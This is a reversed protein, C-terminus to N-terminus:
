RSRSTRPRCSDATGSTCIATLWFAKRTRGFFLSRWGGPGTDGYSRIPRVNSYLDFAQRLTSSPNRDALDDEPYEGSFVPGLLWGDCEKLGELTEQPVTSDYEDYAEWGVPFDWFEVALDTAEVVRKAAAVIEPGIGDRDLVSLRIM